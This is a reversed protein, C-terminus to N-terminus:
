VEVARLGVIALAGLAVAIAVHRSRSRQLSGPRNLRGIHVTLIPHKSVWLAWAGCLWLGTPKTTTDSTATTTAMTITTTTARTIATATDRDRHRTCTFLVPLCATPEDRAAAHQRSLPHSEM